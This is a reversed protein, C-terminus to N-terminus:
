DVVSDPVSEPVFLRFFLTIGALTLAIGAGAGALFWLLPTM